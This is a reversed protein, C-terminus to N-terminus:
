AYDLDEEVWLMYVRHVKLEAELGYGEFLGTTYRSSLAFKRPVHETPQAREKEPSHWTKEGPRSSGSSGSSGRTGRRDPRM